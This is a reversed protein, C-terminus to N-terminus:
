HIIMPKCYSPSHTCYHPQLTCLESLKTVASCADQQVTPKPETSAECAVAFVMVMWCCLMAVVLTHDHESACMTCGNHYPVTVYSISTGCPLVGQRAAYRSCRCWRLTHRTLFKAPLLLSSLCQRSGVRLAIGTRPWSCGGTSCLLRRAQCQKPRWLLGTTSYGQDGDRIQLLVPQHM